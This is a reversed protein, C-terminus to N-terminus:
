ARKYKGHGKERHVRHNFNIIIHKATKPEADWFGKLGNGSIEGLIIRIPGSHSVVAVTKNGENKYKNRLKSLFRKVRKQLTILDEGGPAGFTMPEEHWRRVDAPFRKEIEEITLGEWQGLYTERLLPDPHIPYNKHDFIIRTTQMTRLLPSTYVADIRKKRLVQALRKVQRIGLANLPVDIAGCLKKACTYDTEGHRILILKM